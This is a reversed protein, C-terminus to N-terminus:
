KRIAKIAARVAAEINDDNCNKPYLEFDTVEFLKVYNSFDTINGARKFENTVKNKYIWNHNQGIAGQQYVRFHLDSPNSADIDIIDEIAKLGKKLKEFQEKPYKM